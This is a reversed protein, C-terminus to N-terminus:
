FFRIRIAELALKKNNDDLCDIDSLNFKNRENYLHLALNLMVKESSSWPGAYRKLSQIKITEIEFDFYKTTFVSKLKYHNQFLHILSSWYRDKMFHVPIQNAM